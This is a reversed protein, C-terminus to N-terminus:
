AFSPLFFLDKEVVTFCSQFLTSNLFHHLVSTFIVQIFCTALILNLLMYKLSNLKMIELNILETQEIKM